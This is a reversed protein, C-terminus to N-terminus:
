GNETVYGGSVCHCLDNLDLKGSPILHSLESGKSLCSSQCLGYSVLTLSIGYIIIFFVFILILLLSFEVIIRVCSKKDYNSLIWILFLPILFLGFLFAMNDFIAGVLLIGFFMTLIVLTFALSELGNMTKM